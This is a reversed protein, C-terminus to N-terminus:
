ELFLFFFFSVKNRLPFFGTPVNLETFLISLFLFHNDKLAEKKDEVIVIPRIWPFFFSQNYFCTSGGPSQQFAIYIFNSDSAVVQM